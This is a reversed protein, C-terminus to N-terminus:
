VFRDRLSPFSKARASIAAQSELRTLVWDNGARERGHPGSPPMVRLPAAEVRNCLAAGVRARLNLKYPLM